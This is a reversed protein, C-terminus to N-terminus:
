QGAILGLCDEVLPHGIYQVTKTEPDNNILGADALRPLASHHLRTTVHDLSNGACTHQSVYAALDSLSAHGDDTNELYSLVARRHRDGLLEFVTESSLIPIESTDVPPTRNESTEPKIEGDEGSVTNDSMTM